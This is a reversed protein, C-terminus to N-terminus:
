SANQPTGPKQVLIHLHKPQPGDEWYDSVDEVVDLLQVHDNGEVAEVPLHTQVARIKETIEASTNNRRSL